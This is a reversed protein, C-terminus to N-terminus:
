TQKTVPSLTLHVFQREAPAWIEADPGYVVAHALLDRPEVTNSDTGQKSCPIFTVALSGTLRGGLETFMAKPLEWVVGQMVGSRKPDTDQHGFTVKGVSWNFGESQPLSTIKLKALADLTKAAGQVPVGVEPGIADALTSADQVIPSLVQWEQAAKEWLSQQKPVPSLYKVTATLEKIRWGGSVPFFMYVRAAPDSKLNTWLEEGM